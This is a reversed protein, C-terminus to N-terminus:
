KEKIILIEIGDAAAQELQASHHTADFEICRHQRKGIWNNLKLDREFEGDSVYVGAHNLAETLSIEIMEKNNGFSNIKM